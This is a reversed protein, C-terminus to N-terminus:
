AMKSRVIDTRDESPVSAKRLPEEFSTIKKFPLDNRLAVFTRQFASGKCLLNFLTINLRYKAMPM